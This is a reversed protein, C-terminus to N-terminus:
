SEVTYAVPIASQFGLMFITRLQLDPITAVAFMQMDSLVQGVDEPLCHMDDNRDRKFQLLMDYIQRTSEQGPDLSLVAAFAEYVQRQLVDYEVRKKHIQLLKLRRSVDSFYIYEREPNNHNLIDVMKAYVATIVEALTNRIESLELKSKLDKVESKLDKVESKLDKGESKLDKVESELENLRSVFHQFCLTAGVVRVENTSHKEDLLVMNEGLFTLTLPGIDCMYFERLTSKAEFLIKDRVNCIPKDKDVKIKLDSVSDAHIPIKVLMPM